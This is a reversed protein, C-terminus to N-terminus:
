QRLDSGPRRGRQAAAGQVADLPVPRPEPATYEAPHARISDWRAHEAEDREYLEGYCVVPVPVRPRHAAVIRHGEKVTDWADSEVPEQVGRDRIDAELKQTFAPETDHLVRAVDSTDADPFDGFQLEWLDAPELHYPAGTV